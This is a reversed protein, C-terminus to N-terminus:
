GCDGGHSLIVLLLCCIGSRYAFLGQSDHRGPHCQDAFFHAHRDELSSGLVRHLTSADPCEGPIFGLHELFLQILGLSLAEGSGCLLVVLGQDTDM